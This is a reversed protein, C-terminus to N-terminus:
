NLWVILDNLIIKGFTHNKLLFFLQIYVSTSYGM